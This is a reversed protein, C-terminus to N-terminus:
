CAAPQTDAAAIAMSAPDTDIDMQVFGPMHTTILTM